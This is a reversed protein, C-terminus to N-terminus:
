PTPIENGIEGREDAACEFHGLRDAIARVRHARAELPSALVNLQVEAVVSRHVAVLQVRERDLLRERSGTGDSRERRASGGSLSQCLARASRAAFRGSRERTMPAKEHDALRCFSSRSGGVILSPVIPDVSRDFQFVVVASDVRWASM